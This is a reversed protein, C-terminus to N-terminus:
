RSLILDEFHLFWSYFCGGDRWKLDNKHNVSPMPQPPTAL